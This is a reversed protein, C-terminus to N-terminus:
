CKNKLHSKKLTNGECKIKKIEGMLAQIKNKSYYLIRLVM